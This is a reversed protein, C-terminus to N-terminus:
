HSRPHRCGGPQQRPHISRGVILVGVLAVLPVVVGAQVQGLQLSFTSV